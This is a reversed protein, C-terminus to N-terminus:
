SWFRANLWSSLGGISRTQLKIKGQGKLRAVFGEGSFISSFFGGSLSLKLDLEEPYSLLHGTDVIYEGSVEKEVVAGFAGYFLKGKGHLYLRFLGEGAIWSSFGAWRLKLHVGPECALFAGPQMFLSENNLEAQVIEGPLPQTLVVTRETSDHNIFRNIFMSEKGLFKILLGRFLGGNFKTKLEIGKEMSAMAGSETKIAEGAELGIKLYSFSSGGEISVKM